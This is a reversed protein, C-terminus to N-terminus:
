YENETLFIFKFVSFSYLKQGNENETFIFITANKYFCLTPPAWIILSSKMYRERVEDEERGWLDCFWNREIEEASIREREGKVLEENIFQCLTAIERRLLILKEREREYNKEKKKTPKYNKWADGIYPLTSYCCVITFFTIIRERKSHIYIHTHEKPPIKIWDQM